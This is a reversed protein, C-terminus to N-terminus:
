LGMTLLLEPPAQTSSCHIEEKSGEGPHSSLLSVRKELWAPGEQVGQAKGPEPPTEQVRCIRSLLSDPVNSILPEGGFSEQPEREARPAAPTSLGCIM